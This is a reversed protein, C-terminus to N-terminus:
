SNDGAAAIVIQLGADLGQMFAEREVNLYEDLAHARGGGGGTGITISPVGLSMGINADTSSAVFRVNYGSALLIDSTQTVLPDTEATGGAPRDGIRKKEASIEGARNSRALNEAAVAEDVIALFQAELSALEEPDPSRMDVLLVIRDPITNVSRGGYVVSASYTTKPDSPPAIRYLRQVTDAMAVMPNVIGYAGFSHGGPGNFAIEYRKSGVARHVLRAVNAGDVSIFRSIRGAYAGKTMLHRVGRLDGRGEEGVTGVFLIPRDTGVNGADLARIWGLLAALGLSDDGIGPALLRDGERRVTVDTDEPFVTDLHASVVLLNGDIRGNRDPRIGTVNGEADTTVDRLGLRAFAEALHRGRKEEGFPPAPIETITILQEVIRDYDGALSARAKAQPDDAAHVPTGILSLLVALFVLGHRM